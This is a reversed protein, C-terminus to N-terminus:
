DFAERFADTKEHAMAGVNIQWVLEAIRRQGVRCRESSSLDCCHEQFMTRTRVPYRDIAISRQVESRPLSVRPQQSEQELSAGVRAITRIKVFRHKVRDVFRRTTVAILEEPDECLVSHNGDDAAVVIRSLDHARSK